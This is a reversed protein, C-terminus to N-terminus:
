GFDVPLFPEDDESLEELSSPQEDVLASAEAEWLSWPERATTVAHPASAPEERLDPIQSM